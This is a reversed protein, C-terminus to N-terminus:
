KITVTTKYSVRKIMDFVYTGSGIAEAFNQINPIFQSM